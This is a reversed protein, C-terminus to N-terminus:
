MLKFYKNEFEKRDDTNCYEEWHNLRDRCYADFCNDPIHKKIFESKKAAEIAEGLNKPMVAKCFNEAPLTEANEIGDLGANIFLALTIYPNCIIDPTNLEIYAHTENEGTM